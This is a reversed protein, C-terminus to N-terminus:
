RASRPTMGSLSESSSHDTAEPPITRGHPDANTQELAEALDARLSPGIFHELREAPEHLHDDPLSLHESLYLEWLRHARVLQAADGRGSETLAVTGQQPDIQLAGRYALLRFAVIGILPGGLSSAWRRAVSSPVAALTPSEEEARFLRALIDESAIRLSLSTTQLLKGLLGHRPGFLVAAGFQVGAIVAMMGAASANVISAGVTGFAAANMAVGAAILMMTGLRDTLLHATAAPVILMAVVLISGVAEFAGVTVGAVMAMLAYHIITANLGLATALGSDFSALKLEKWLLGVFLVTLASVLGLSGVSRPIEWGNVSVTDITALLLNGLFVCNADLDVRDAAAQKMLIVGVAFLTTFVVGMSSDESVGGLGSLFRTLFATLIGLAMAGIIIGPGILQGSVLFALVIGPLVAHSIADGLLSLRRLVLYCGLIACPVNALIGLIISWRYLPGAFVLTLGVPILILLVFILHKIRSRWKKKNKADLSYNM